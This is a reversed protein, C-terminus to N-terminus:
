APASMAFSKLADILAQESGEAADPKNWGRLEAFARGAAIRSAYPGNQMAQRYTNELLARDEAETTAANNRTIAAIQRLTYGDTTLVQAWHVAFSSQMGLRLCAKYPDFDKMYEVVYCDRFDKESQSLPEDFQSRDPEM